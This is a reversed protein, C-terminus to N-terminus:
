ATVKLSIARLLSHLANTANQEYNRDYWMGFILYTAPTILPETEQQEKSMGTQEEIYNPIADFLAKAVDDNIGADLHIANMADKLTVM